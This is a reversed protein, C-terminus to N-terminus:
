RSVGRHVAASVADLHSLQWDITQLTDHLVEAHDPFMRRPLIGDLICQNYSAELVNYALMAGPLAEIETQDLKTVKIYGAVFAEVCDTRITPSAGQCWHFRLRRSLYKAVDWIRPANPLHDFDIFGVGRGHALHLVNGPTFDGHVIQLPLKSLLDLIEYRVADFRQLLDDPLRLEGTIGGKIDETYSGLPQSYRSMAQHLHATAVGIESEHHPIENAPLHVHQLARMLVFSDDIPGATVAGDDTLLFAPVRVGEELLHVLMRYESLVPLNRWPGLRKLYYREGYVSQVQWLERLDDVVDLTPNEGVLTQWDALQKLLQSKEFAM